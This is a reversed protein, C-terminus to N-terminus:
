EDFERKMQQINFRNLENMSNLWFQCYPLLLCSVPYCKILDDKVYITILYLILNNYLCSTIRLLWNALPWGLSISSTLALITIIILCSPFHLYLNWKNGSKIILFFSSFICAFELYLFSSSLFGAIFRYLLFFFFEKWRQLEDFQHPPYETLDLLLM